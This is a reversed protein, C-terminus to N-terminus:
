SDGRQGGRRGRVEVSEVVIKFPAASALDSPQRGVPQQSVAAPLRLAYIDGDSSFAIRTGDPSWAPTRDDASNNTLRTQGSGDAGMVYIERNGDFRDDRDSSFAIWTGDPSWAPHEDFPDRFEVRGRTLNMQGSGDANMVHIDAPVIVQLLGATPAWQHFAIKSGDPSWAAAEDILSTDTLQIPGSGDANMVYVDPYNPELFDEPARDSSFAIRTGDPSWAPNSDLAPDSTLNTQSSGDANMVYIEENGDRDSQFAIRRGDPSWAPSGDSASNNTLRTQGSGDANMVYIEINGDRDSQFAVRRGDPSWAPNSDLANNDTLQTLSDAAAITLRVASSCNNATNTEGTVPDVCMGFYTSGSAASAAVSIRLRVTATVAPALAEVAIDDSAVRDSTTIAADNSEHARSNTAPSAANGANRITFEVVGEGGPAVTIAQPSVGSFELDPAAARRVSVSVSQAATLGGPDRATVTVTAAGEAVGTLTLASGSTAASVVAANSTAATYTLPDGDPDRFYSAVDLTETERANVNQAPVTGVAEPARNPTQVTVAVSQAATLGGPDSATVTVTATGDAVGVMTLISGSMSVSVVGAASTAASFGLADGDPDRFYSVVDLTVTQGTNVSRAPISGVTEPTRNPTQVTVAVSQAATLGGPDRATVTVTAAGDAVGVLALSSGTVAVSVVAPNSTSATYTLAGGDPDGFYSAVDITATEGVNVSQPPIAGVAQPAQNPPPPPPPPLPNEGGCAAAALGIGALGIGVLCLSLRGAWTRRKARDEVARRERM